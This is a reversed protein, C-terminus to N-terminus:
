HFSQPGLHLPTGPVNAAVMRRAVGNITAEFAHFTEMPDATGQRLQSLKELAETSIVCDRNISDVRVTFAIGDKGMKPQATPETM